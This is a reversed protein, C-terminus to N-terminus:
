RRSRKLWRLGFRVLENSLFGVGGTLMQKGVGAGEKEKKKKKGAQKPKTSYAEPSAIANTTLAKETHGGTIQQYTSWQERSLIKALEYDYNQRLQMFQKQAEQPNEKRIQRLERVARRQSNMLNNIEAEQLDTLNLASDMQAMSMRAQLNQKQAILHNNAMHIYGFVSLCLLVCFIHKQM